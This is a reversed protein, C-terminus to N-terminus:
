AACPPRQAGAGHPQGGTGGGGFDGAFVADDVLFVEAAVRSTVFSAAAAGVVSSVFFASLEPVGLVSRDPDWPETPDAVDLVVSSGRLPAERHLFITRLDEMAAAAVLSDTACFFAAAASFIDAVPSATLPLPTAAFSFIEPAPVAADVFIFSDVVAADCDILSFDVFAAVDILVDDDFAACDILDDDELAAAETEPPNQFTTFSACVALIEIKM